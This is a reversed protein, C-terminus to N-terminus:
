RSRKAAGSGRSSRGKWCMSFAYADHRHTHEVAGPPYEVSLMVMEKGPVDALDKQMVPTVIPQPATQALAGGFPLATALLSFLIHKM